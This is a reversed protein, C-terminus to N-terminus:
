YIFFIPFHRAWRWRKIDPNNVCFRTPCPLHIADFEPQLVCVCLDCVIAELTREFTAQDVARRARKRLKYFHEYGEVQKQVEGILDKMKDTGARLFPNFARANNSSNSQM